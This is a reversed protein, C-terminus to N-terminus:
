WKVLERSFANPSLVKYKGKEIDKWDEEVSRSTKLDEPSISARLKKMVIVGKQSSILFLNGERIKLRKRIRTPIM